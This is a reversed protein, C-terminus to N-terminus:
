RLNGRQIKLDNLIKRKEEITQKMEPLQMRSNDLETKNKEISKKLNQLEKNQKELNKELKNIDKILNNEDKLAKAVVKEKDKILEDFRAKVYDNVFNTTMTKLRNYEDTYDSPSFYVDYGLKGTVIMDTGQPTVNFLSYLDFQKSTIIGISVKEATVTSRSSRAKIKHEKKLFKKWASMLPKVEAESSIAFAPRSNGDIMANVDKVHIPSQAYMFSSFLIITSLILIKHTKM